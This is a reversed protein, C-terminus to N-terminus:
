APKPQIFRDLILAAVIGIFAVIFASIKIPQAFAAIGALQDSGEDQILQIFQLITETYDALGFIVAAIFIISGLGKLLGKRKTAFGRGALFAGLAYIWIWGLDCLVAIIALGRVGAEKWQTQIKNVQEATGAAQHDLISFTGGGQEISGSAVMVGLFILLSILWLKVSVKEQM